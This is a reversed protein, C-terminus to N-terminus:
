NYFFYYFSIPLLISAIILGVLAFKKDVRRDEEFGDLTERIKRLASQGIKVRKFREIVESSQDPQTDM